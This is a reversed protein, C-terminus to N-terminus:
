HFRKLLTKEREVEEDELSKLLLLFKTQYLSEGSTTWSTPNELILWPPPSFLFQYPGAYTWEWDM